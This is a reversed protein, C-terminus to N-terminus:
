DFLVAKAYVEFLADQRAEAKETTSLALQAQQADDLKKLSGTGFM